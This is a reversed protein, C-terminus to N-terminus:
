RTVILHSSIRVFKLNLEAFPQREKQNAARVTHILKTGDELPMNEETVRRDVHCITITLRCNYSSVSVSLFQFEFM